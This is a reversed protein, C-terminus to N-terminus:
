LPGAQPLYPSVHRRLMWPLRTTAHQNSIDSGAAEGLEIPPVVQMCVRIRDRCRSGAIDNPGYCLGLLVACLGKAYVFFHNGSVYHTAELSLVDDTIRRSEGM